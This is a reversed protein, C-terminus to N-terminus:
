NIIQESRKSFSCGIFAGGLSYLITTFANIKQIIEIKEFDPSICEQFQNETNNRFHVDAICNGIEIITIQDVSLMFQDSIIGGIIMLIGLIMLGYHYKQIKKIIKGM